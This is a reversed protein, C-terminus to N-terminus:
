KDEAPKKRENCRYGGTDEARPWLAKLGAADVVKGTYGGPLAFGKAGSALELLVGNVVDDMESRPGEIVLFRGTVLQISVMADM